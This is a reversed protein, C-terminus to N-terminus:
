EPDPHCYAEDQTVATQSRFLNALAQVPVSRCDQVSELAAFVHKFSVIIEPRKVRCQGGDNVAMLVCVRRNIMEEGHEGLAPREGVIDGLGTQPM